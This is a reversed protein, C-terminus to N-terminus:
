RLRRSAREWYYVWSSSFLTITSSPSDWGQPVTKNNKQWFEFDPVLWRMCKQKVFQFNKPKTKFELFLCDRERGRERVCVCVCVRECACVWKGFMNQARFCSYKFIFYNRSFKRAVNANHLSNVFAFYFNGFSSYAWFLYM